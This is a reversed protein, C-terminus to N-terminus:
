HIPERLPVSTAVSASGTRGAVAVARAVTEVENLDGPFVVRPALGVQEWTTGKPSTLKGTTLTFATGDPLPYLTQSRGDGWTRGTGVITAGSDALRIALAEAFGATGADTMVSVSRKEKAFHTAPLPLPSRKGGVGIEIAFPESTSTLDAAIKEAVELSGAGPNQRLDLVISDGSPARQLASDVESWISETFAGVCLYTASKGGSAEQRVVLKPTATQANEVVIRLPKAVGPRQVILIHSGTIGQRLQMQAVLLGIGDQIPTDEEEANEDTPSPKPAPKTLKSPTLYPNDGLIYLGDLHTIQDGTRLGAKFAPSDPLPAVVVLRSETYGSRIKASRIATVAGIGAFRGESEADFILREAATVFYSQDDELFSLMARVAGHSMIQETPLIDVYENRVLDHVQAFTGAAIRLRKDVDTNKPHLTTPRTPTVSPQGAQALRTKPITVVAPASQRSRQLYQGGSFAAFTLLTASIAFSFSSARFFKHPATM